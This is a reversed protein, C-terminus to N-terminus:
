MQTKLQALFDSRLFQQWPLFLPAPLTDFDVWRQEVCKDPETIHPEGSKWDSVLWVTVFHKNDSEFIDNTVGGIRVNEIEMGTEERVERVACEELTEGFELYGGPTSWTGEGHSGKRQQFLFKGDRMVFVATGVYPRVLSKAPM